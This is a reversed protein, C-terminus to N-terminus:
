LIEVGPGLGSVIVDIVGPVDRLASVVTERADPACVAKLQPGADITFFVPLGSARLAAVAQMCGVTAPNWYILPPRNAMAAAHMKLCTHEAIEALADFDRALIADRGTRLDSESTAVWAPYYPSTSASREM